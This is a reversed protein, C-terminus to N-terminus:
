KAAVGLDLITKGPQVVVDVINTLIDTVVHCALTSTTRGDILINKLIRSINVVSIQFVVLIDVVIRVVEVSRKRLVRPPSKVM